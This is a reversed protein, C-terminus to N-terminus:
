RIPWASNPWHPQHNGAGQRPVAGALCGPDVPQPHGRCDPVDQAVLQRLPAREDKRVASTTTVHKKRASVAIREQCRQLGSCVRGRTDGRIEWCNWAHAGRLPGSRTREGAPHRHRVPQRAPESPSVLVRDPTFVPRHEESAGIATATGLPPVHSVRRRCGAVIKGPRDGGPSGRRRNRPKRDDPRVLTTTDYDAQDRWGRRRAPLAERQRACRGGIAM